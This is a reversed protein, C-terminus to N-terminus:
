ISRATYLIIYMYMHIYVQTHVHTHISGIRPCRVTHASNRPGSIPVSHPYRQLHVSRCCGQDLSSRYWTKSFLLTQIIYKVVRYKFVNNDKIKDALYVLIDWFNDLSLWVLIHYLHHSTCYCISDLLQLMYVLGVVVSVFGLISYVFRYTFVKPALYM